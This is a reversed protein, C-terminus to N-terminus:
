KLQHDFVVSRFILITIFLKSNKPKPKQKQKQKQKEEDSDEIDSPSLVVPFKTGGTKKMKKEDESEDRSQHGESDESSQGSGRPSTKDGPPSTSGSASSPKLKRASDPSIPREVVNNRSKDGSGKGRSGKGGGRSSKSKNGIEKPSQSYKPKAGTEKHANSSYKPKPGGTEKHANASYKPKYGTEKHANPNIGEDGSGNQM